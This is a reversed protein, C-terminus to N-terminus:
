DFEKLYAIVDNLDEESMQWRPMCWDMIEGEHEGKTIAIKIEEESMGEGALTSFRIDSGHCCGPPYYRGDSYGQIV